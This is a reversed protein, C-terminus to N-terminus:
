LAWKKLQLLLLFFVEKTQKTKKNAIEGALEGYVRRTGKKAAQEAAEEATPEREVEGDFFLTVVEEEAM